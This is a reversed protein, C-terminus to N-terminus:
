VTTEWLFSGNVLPDLMTDVYRSVGSAGRVPHVTETELGDGGWPCVESVTVTWM